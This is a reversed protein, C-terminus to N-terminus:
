GAQRVVEGDVGLGSQELYHLAGQLEWNDPRAGSNEIRQLTIRRQLMGM